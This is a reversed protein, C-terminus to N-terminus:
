IRISPTRAKRDEMLINNPGAMAMALLQAGAELLAFRGLLLEATLLLGQLRGPEGHFGGFVRHNELIVGPIKTIILFTVQSLRPNLHNLSVVHPNELIFGPSKSHNLHNPTQLYFLHPNLQHSGHFVPIEAYSLSKFCSVHPISIFKGHFM